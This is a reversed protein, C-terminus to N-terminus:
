DMKIMGNLSDLETVISATNPRLEAANAYPDAKLYTLGGKAKIEYKYIEGKLGQFLLEFIGSSVLRRMPYRRGDWQNFNGVVSVRMANPAWVAFYLARLAMLLWGPSCRTKTYIMIYVKQFFLEEDQSTIYPAFAYPDGCTETKGGDLTFTFTHSKIKKKCRCLQLFGGEDEMYMEVDKNKYTLTASVAKLVIHASLHGMRRKM